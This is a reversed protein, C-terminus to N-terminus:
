DPKKPSPKKAAPKRSSPNPVTPRAAAKKTTPAAPTKPASTVTRTAPPAAPASAQAAADATMRSHRGTLVVLAAVVILAVVVVVISNIAGRNDTAESAPPAAEEAVLTKQYATLTTTTRVGSSGPDLPTLAADTLTFWASHATDHVLTAEAPIGAFAAGLSAGRTFDALDPADGAPNIWITAVGVPKDAITITATWENVRKTAAADTKGALFDDSWVFVRDLEGVKTDDGFDLGKGTSGVGFLDDLRALLGAPDAAYAAVVSPVSGATAAASSAALPAGVLAVVALVFAAGRSVTQAPV